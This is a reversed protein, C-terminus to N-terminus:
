TTCYTIDADREFNGGSEPGINSLMRNCLAINVVHPQAHLKPWQQTLPSMFQLGPRQSELTCGGDRTFSQNREM